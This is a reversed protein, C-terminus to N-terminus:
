RGLAVEQIEVGHPLARKDGYLWAGFCFSVSQVHEPRLHDGPGGRDAPKGGWHKLYELSSIPIRIEQWQTTLPVNLGWPAGDQEILVLEFRDTQPETARAKFIVTKAEAALPLQAALGAPVSTRWGICDPEPGFGDVHVRLAARDPDMGAVLRQTGKQQHLRVKVEAPRVLVVPADAAVVDSLWTQRRHVLAAGAVEVAQPHPSADGLIWAGTVFCIESVRRLDPRGPKTGWRPELNAVPITIERWAPSITINSGFAPGDSQKLTVEVRSTEPGGRITLRVAEYDTLDATLPLTPLGMGASSPKEGFGDAELRAAVAGPERGPALKVRAGMGARGSYSATPLTMGESLKLLPLPPKALAAASRDGTDGGPLNVMEAGDRVSLYAEVKGPALLEGPVRAAYRYAGAAAMPVATFGARGAPRVHLVVPEVGVGAVTATVRLERGERWEAPWDTYAAPPATSPPLAVFRPGSVATPFRKGAAALVYAGPTVTVVGDRATRVPGAPKSEAVAQLRFDPGLDPLAVTLPWSRRLVRMKESTGGSYPDAVMVVDPYVQLQWVGPAVRDLFYAGTGPYKVVASSGCGALRQLRAPSPPPTDTDSSYLFTDDTVLESLNQEYSVRFDGFRNSDPYPGYAQLRPLRRMAEAAIAFSLAKNPTYVLNLYHTQWNPNGAALCLADYQFQNAIQVGAARFTRAMAPYMYAGPVDAADFEYVIKGLRALQPDRMDPNDAVRPLFNDTLMGGSVLGTPYWGFTVGDLKAAAAAAHRGSWCNYFIPKRCGTARVADCLTNIYTTVASDPAGPAYLPENILEIAVIAPDDKYAQHTYRNVHNVYQGLYRAQKAWAEPSGTMQPMTYLDSFGGPQPAGWWAIPTMVCYIGHRRCEAILFDLLRLHENDVLNGDRDSIERDWCHLRISTLGLRVFHQVDDRIAQEQSLGRTQMQAYDISFPAYYNVGFLAVEANDDSWRLVGQEDVRATRTAPAALAAVTALMLGLLVLPRM